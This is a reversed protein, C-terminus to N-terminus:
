DDHDEGAEHGVAYGAGAGAAAGAALMCGPATIMAAALLTILLIIFWGSQERDSAQAHPAPEHLKINLQRM